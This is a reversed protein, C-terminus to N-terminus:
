ALLPELIEIIEVNQFYANQKPCLPYDKPSKFHDIDVNEKGLLQRSILSNLTVNINKSLKSILANAKQKNTQKIKRKNQKAM